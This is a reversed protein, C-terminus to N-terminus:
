VSGLCLPVVTDTHPGDHAPTTSCQPSPTAHTGGDDQRKPIRDERTRPDPFAKPTAAPHALFPSLVFYIAMLPAPHPRCHHSALRRWCPPQSGCTCGAAIVQCLITQSIYRRPCPRRAALDKCTVFNSCSQRHRHSPTKPSPVRTKETASYTSENLGYTRHKLPIHGM